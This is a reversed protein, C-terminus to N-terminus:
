DVVSRTPGTDFKAASDEQTIGSPETFNAAEVKATDDEAAVEGTSETAEAPAPQDIPCCGAFRRQAIFGGALLASLLILATAARNVWLWFKSGDPPAAPLRARMIGIFLCSLGLIFSAVLIGTTVGERTGEPLLAYVVDPCAFALGMFFTGASTWVAPRDFWPRVSIGAASLSEFAKDVHLHSVTPSQAHSAFSDAMRRLNAKFATELAKARNTADKHWGM